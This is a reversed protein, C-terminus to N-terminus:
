GSTICIYFVIDNNSPNEPEPQRALSLAGPSAPSPCGHPITDNSVFLFILLEEL